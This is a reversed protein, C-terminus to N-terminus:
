VDRATRTDELEQGPLAVIDFRRSDRCALEGPFVRLKNALHFGTDGHVASAGPFVGASCSHSASATRLTSFRWHIAAMAQTGENSMFVAVERRALTMPAPMAVSHIATLVATDASLTDSLSSSTMSAM